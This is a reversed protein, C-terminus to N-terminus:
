NHTSNLFADTRLTAWSRRYASTDTEVLEPFLTAAGGALLPEKLFKRREDGMSKRETEPRFPSRSSLLKTKRQFPSFYPGEILRGHGKAGM